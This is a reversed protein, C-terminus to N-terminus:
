PEFAEPLDFMSIAMFSTNRRNTMGFDSAVTSIPRREGQGFPRPSEYRVFSEPVLYICGALVAFPKLFSQRKM